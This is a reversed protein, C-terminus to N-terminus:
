KKGREQLNLKVNKQCGRCFPYGALNYSLPADCHPCFEVNHGIGWHVIEQIKEHCKNHVELCVVM